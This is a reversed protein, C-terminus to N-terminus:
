DLRSAIAAQIQLEPQGLLGIIMAVAFLLCAIACIYEAAATARGAPLVVGALTSAFAILFFVLAIMYM